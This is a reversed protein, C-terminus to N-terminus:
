QRPATFRLRLWRVARVVALIALTESVAGVAIYLYGWEGSLPYADGAEAGAVWIVVAASALLVGRPLRLPSTRGGARLLLRASARTGAAFRLARATRLPALRIDPDDLIAPLEATWERILEGRIDQPLRRCARRILYAALRQGCVARSV